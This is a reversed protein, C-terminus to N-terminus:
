SESEFLRFYTLDIPCPSVTLLNKKSSLLSLLVSNTSHNRVIHNLLLHIRTCILRNHLQEREKELEQVRSVASDRKITNGTVTNELRRVYEESM